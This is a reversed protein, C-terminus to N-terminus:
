IKTIKWIFKYHAFSGIKAWNDMCSVAPLSSKKVCEIFTQPSSKSPKFHSKEGDM